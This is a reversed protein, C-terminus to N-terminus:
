GRVGGGKGRKANYTRKKEECIKGSRKRKRKKGGGGGGGGEEGERVRKKEVRRAGCSGEHREAGTTRGVTETDGTGRCVIIYRLLSAYYNTRCPIFSALWGGIRTHQDSHATSTRRTRKTATVKLVLSLAHRQGQSRWTRRHCRSCLQWVRRCSISWRGLPDGTSSTCPDPQTVTFLWTRAVQTGKRPPPAPPSPQNEDPISVFGNMVSTFTFAVRNRLRPHPLIGHDWVLQM